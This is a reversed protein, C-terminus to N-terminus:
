IFDAKANTLIFIKISPPATRKVIMNGRYYNLANERIMPKQQGWFSVDYKKQEEAMTNIHVNYPFSFPFPFINGADDHLSPIYERKLIIDFPKQQIATEFENGANLRYFDGGTKPEDGGDIFIVPKDKILPLIKLYIHLAAPKASGLIIIDFSNFNTFLPLRFSFSTYGLNKPYDKLPLHYKTNWPYDVVNESGLIKALGAYALDQAYDFKTDCIFLIRM